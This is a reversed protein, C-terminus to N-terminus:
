RERIIRGWTGGEGCDDCQQPDGCVASGFAVTKQFGRNHFALVEPLPLALCHANNWLQCSLIGLSHGFSAQQLAWPHGCPMFNSTRACCTSKILILTGQYTGTEGNERMGLFAQSDPLTQPSSFPSDLATTLDSHLFWSLRFPCWPCAYFVLPVPSSGLVLSHFMTPVLPRATVRIFCPAGCNGNGLCCGALREEGGGGLGWGPRAEPRRWRGQKTEMAVPPAPSAGFM